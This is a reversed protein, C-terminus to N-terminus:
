RSPVLATLARTYAEISRPENPANMLEARVIGAPDILFSARTAFGKDDLFAGYAQAVAGFPWRDSLLQFKYGQEEAWARLSFKSDISIAVLEVDDQEFVNLNDRLECLEGQCLGSFALPFFVLAINKGRFDSLSITEGHQNELTFEPAPKNLLSTM